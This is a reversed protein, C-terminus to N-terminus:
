KWLKKRREQFNKEQLYHLTSTYLSEITWEWKLVDYFEIVEQLHIALGM